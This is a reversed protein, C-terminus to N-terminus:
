MTNNDNNNNHNREDNNSGTNNGTNQNQANRNSSGSRGMDVVSVNKTNAKPRETNIYMM